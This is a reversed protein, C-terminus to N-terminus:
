IDGTVIVQHKISPPQSRYNDLHIPSPLDGLEQLPRIVLSILIQLTAPRFRSIRALPIRCTSFCKSRQLACALGEQLPTICYIKRASSCSILKLGLTDRIASVRFVPYRSAGNQSPPISRASTLVGVNV